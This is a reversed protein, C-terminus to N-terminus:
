LAGVLLAFAAFPLTYAELVAVENLRMIIWWAAVESLAASWWLGRRWAHSRGPRLGAVGPVAGRGVLVAARHAPSGSTLVLGLALSPYGGLWEVLALDAGVDPQAAAARLQPLRPVALLAVAAVALLALSAEPRSAGLLYATVLAFAQAALVAGGWGLRRALWTRGGLAAFGGVVVAGGLTVWTLQLDALAGALGAGGAALGIGHVVARNARL